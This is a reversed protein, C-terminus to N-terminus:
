LNLFISVKVMIPLDGLSQTFSTLEETDRACDITVTLPATYSCGREICEKPYINYDRAEGAGPPLRPKGVNIDQLMLREKRETMFCLISRGFYRLIHSRVLMTLIM